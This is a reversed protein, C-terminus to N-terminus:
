LTNWAKMCYGSNDIYLTLPPYLIDELLHRNKLLYMGSPQHYFPLYNTLRVCGGNFLQQGVKLIDTKFRSKKYM